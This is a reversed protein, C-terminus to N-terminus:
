PVANPLCVLLALWRLDPAPTGPGAARALWSPRLFCTKHMGIGYLDGHVHLEGLCVSVHTRAGGDRGDAGMQQSGMGYSGHQIDIKYKNHVGLRAM